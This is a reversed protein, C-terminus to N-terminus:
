EAKDAKEMLKILLPGRFGFLHRVYLKWRGSMEKVYAIPPMESEDAWQDDKTTGRPKLTSFPVSYSSCGRMKSPPCGGSIWSKEFAYAHNCFCESGILMCLRAGVLRNKQNGHKINVQYQLVTPEEEHCFSESILCSANGSLESIVVWITEPNITALTAQHDHRWRFVHAIWRTSSHGVVSRTWEWFYSEM